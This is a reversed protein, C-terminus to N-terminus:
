PAPRSWRPSLARGIWEVYRDVRAELAMWAASLSARIQERNEHLRALKEALLGARGPESLLRAPMAWEPLGLEGYWDLIKDTYALALTPVQAGLALITSHMPVGVFLDCLGMLAKIMSCGCSLRLVHAPMALRRAVDRAQASDNQWPANYLPFFLVRVKKGQAFRNVGEALNQKFAEYGADHLRRSATWASPLIGMRGPFFRRVAVGLITEDPSCVVQEEDNLFRRAAEAAEARLAVAPDPLTDTALGRGGLRTAWEASRQDRTICFDLSRLARAAFFRGMPTCLPGVGLGFGMLPGPSLARVGRLVVAWHMNKLQSSDDQLLQGGGFLTLDVSRLFAPRGLLSVASPAAIEVGFEERDRDPERSVSFVQASPAARRVQDMMVARIARDGRNGALDGGLILIRPSGGRSM